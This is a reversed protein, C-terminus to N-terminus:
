WEEPCCKRDGSSTQDEKDSSLQAISRPHVVNALSQDSIWIPRPPYPPVNAANPVRKCRTGRGLWSSEGRM